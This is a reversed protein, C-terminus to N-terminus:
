SGEGSQLINLQTQADNSIDSIQKREIGFDKTLIDLIVRQAMNREVPYEDTYTMVRKETTPKVKGNGTFTTVGAVGVFAGGPNYTLGNYIIQAVSVTYSVGAEISGSPIYETLFVYGELPNEYILVASGQETYPYQYLANGVRFYFIFQTLRSDSCEFMEFFSHIDTKYMQRQGASQTVRFVGLDNQLEVVPPITFKGLCISSSSVFAPEDASNIKTFTFVGTRQLWVPNVERTLRYIDQIEQARYNNFKYALHELEINTDDSIKSANLIIMLDSTIEDMTM